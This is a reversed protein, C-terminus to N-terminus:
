IKFYFDSIQERHWPGPFNGSDKDQCSRKANHCFLQYLFLFPTNQLSPPPPPPPPPDSDWLTITCWLQSPMGAPALSDMIATWMNAPLFCIYTFKLRWRTIGIVLHSGHPWVRGGLPEVAKLIIDYSSPSLMWFLLKHLSRKCESVVIRKMM